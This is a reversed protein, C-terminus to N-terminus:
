DNRGKGIINAMKLSSYANLSCNLLIDKFLDKRQTNSLYRYGVINYVKDSINQSEDIFQQLNKLSDKGGVSHTIGYVSEDANVYNDEIKEPFENYLLIRAYSLPNKNYEPLLQLDDEFSVIDKLVEKATKGWLRIAPLTHSIVNNFNKYADSNSYPKLKNSDQKSIEAIKLTAAVINFKEDDPISNLFGIYNQQTTFNNLDDYVDTLYKITATALAKGLIPKLAQFLNPHNDSHTKQKTNINKVIELLFKTKNFNKLRVFLNDREEQSFGANNIRSIMTDSIQHKHLLKDFNDEAM